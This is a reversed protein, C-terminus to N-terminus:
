YKEGALFTNSLGDSIRTFSVMYRWGPWFEYAEVQRPNLYTARDLYWARYGAGNWDSPLVYNPGGCIASDGWGIPGTCTVGPFARSEGRTGGAGVKSRSPCHYLPLDAGASAPQVYYRFKLDWNQYLNTQEVYPLILVAWTAWNDGLDCAPL